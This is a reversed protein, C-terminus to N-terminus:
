ALHGLRGKARTWVSATLFLSAPFCVRTRQDAANIDGLLKNCHLAGGWVRQRQM